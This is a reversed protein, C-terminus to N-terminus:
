WRVVMEPAVPVRANSKPCEQQNRHIAVKGYDINAGKDIDYMKYM